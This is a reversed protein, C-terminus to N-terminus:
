QVHSLVSDQIIDMCSPQAGRHKVASIQDSFIVDQIKDSRKRVCSAECCGPAYRIEPVFLVGAGITPTRSCFRKIKLGFARVQMTHALSKKRHGEKWFDEWRQLFRAGNPM